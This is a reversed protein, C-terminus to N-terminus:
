VHHIPGGIRRTGLNSGKIGVALAGLLRQKMSPSAEQKQFIHPQHQLSKPPSDPGAKPEEAQTQGDMLGDHMHAWPEGRRLTDARWVDQASMKGEEGAM